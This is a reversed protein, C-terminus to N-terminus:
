ARKPYEKLGVRKLWGEEVKKLEKLVDDPLPKPQHTKLIEITKKKLLEDCRKTSEDKVMSRDFITPAWFKRFHKLTHKESIYTGRPGIREILDLPLTEENIEIGGMSVNVMDIIENVFVILEPSITTAHYMLGVDHVLEAGSLATMLIQYTVEAGAQADVVEADICGATGFMPLRYYRSLETLAAVMLSMEPAGYPFITTRMEMINPISGYIVPAGPNKLQLVVLQSLFEANAIVLCGAFSAPTTAGAMPMSYVVNPIGKEACVLSKEMADKGEVLPSVPESSGGFFPKKRLAEEGGAVISCLAIMERLSAADNIEAIVPKSSNLIFQLLSVKDAIAGPITQHGTALYAWEMNPLADIVRATDAIDKIYCTRRQREYPDLYYPCDPLSGFHSGTQGNLVMALEGERNYFTVMKPATNLAQEVLYSPIKVRGPDSVDAGAEGLLDIAEQCEFLIGIREMIQLTAFHLEEIQKDSLVRFQPSGFHIYNNRM